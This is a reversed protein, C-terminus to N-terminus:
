SPTPTTSSIAYTYPGDGEVIQYRGATIRTDSFVSYGDRSIWDGAAVTMYGTQEPRVTISGDDNLRVPAGVFEEIEAVDGAWQRVETVPPADTIKITPM